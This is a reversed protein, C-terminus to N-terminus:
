ANPTPKPTPTTPSATPSPSPSPSPSATPAPAPGSPPGGAPTVIVNHYGVPNFDIGSPVEKAGYVWDVLPQDVIEATLEVQHSRDEATSMYPLGVVTFFYSQFQGSVGRIPQVSVRRAGSLSDRGDVKLTIDFEARGGVQASGVTLTDLRVNVSGINGTHMGAFRAARLDVGGASANVGTADAFGCGAGNNISETPPTSAWGAPQGSTNTVKSGACQFYVRQMQTGAASAPALPAVAVVSAAVLLATMLKRM